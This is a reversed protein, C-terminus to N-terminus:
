PELPRVIQSPSGAGSGRNSRPRGKIARIRGGGVSVEAAGGKHAVNSSQADDVERGPHREAGSRRSRDIGADEM